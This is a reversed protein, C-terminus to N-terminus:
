PAVLQPGPQQNISESPLETMGNMHIDEGEIPIPMPERPGRTATDVFLLIGMARKVNSQSLTYNVQATVLTEEEDAVREQADLLDELLLTTSRDNGPLQKWRQLLYNAENEAAVLSHYAGIMERYSTELERVALEVDTMSTEVTTQFDHLARRAELQRREHRAKAARNGIPLEFFLGISYGPEGEGFQKRYAGHVDSGSDLGAVYSSMVLNLTPLIENRAIELRVSNAKMQRIAKSIDPRNAIATQISERMSIRTETPRPADKPLLEIRPTHILDPQNVLLRLRSEANRISMEARVIESSRRAVAARARLVQRQLADVKSRAELTKHIQQASSLLKRKQLHVARSRYLEWFAETVKLLHSQLEGQLEDESVRADIQALVTRSQNYVRGFQNLLPQTYSVELRTTGQQNPVFFRSNNDQYGFKQSLEVDGGLENKRRLGGNASLVNDRFRSAGGTTLTNGVPDSTDDYTSEVFVKWDFEGQEEIISTERIQPEIRMARIQPSYQLASMVLGDVSVHVAKCGSKVPKRIEQDWWPTFAGPVGPFQDAAASQLSHGGSYRTARDLYSQMHPTHPRYPMPTHGTIQRVPLDCADCDSSDIFSHGAQGHGPLGPGHSGDPHMLFSHGIM